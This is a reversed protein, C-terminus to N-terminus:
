EFRGFIFKTDTVADVANQVLRRHWRLELPILGRDDGANFDHRSHINGLLAQRLIAADVDADFTFFDVNADRGHRGNIALAYRQTQESTSLNKQREVLETKSRVFFRGNAFDDDFRM